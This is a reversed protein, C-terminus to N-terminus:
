FAGVINLKLENDTGHYWFQQFKGINLTNELFNELSVEDDGQPNKFPTMMYTQLKYGGDGPMVSNGFDGREFREKRRSNDFIFSDHALGPWRAVVDQFSLDARAVTQVNISFFQKRNRFIEGEEGGPGRVKVHTGIM